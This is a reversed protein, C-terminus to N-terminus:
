LQKYLKAIKSIHYKEAMETLGGSAKKYNKPEKLREVEGILQEITRVGIYYGDVEKYGDHIAAVSPISFSAANIIKLPTKLFM